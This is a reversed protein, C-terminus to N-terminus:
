WAGGQPSRSRPVRAPRPFSTWAWTSNCSSPSTYYKILRFILDYSIHRVRDNRLTNCNRWPHTEILLDTFLCSQKSTQLIIPTVPFLHCTQYVRGHVNFAWLSEIYSVKERSWDRSSSFCNQWMIQRSFDGSCWNQFKTESQLITFSKVWFTM